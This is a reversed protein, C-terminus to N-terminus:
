IGGDERRDSAGNHLPLDAWALVDIRAGAIRYKHDAVEGRHPEGGKDALTVSRPYRHTLLDGHINQRQRASRQRRADVIDRSSNIGRGPSKEHAGREVVLVTQQFRLHEGIDSDIGGTIM